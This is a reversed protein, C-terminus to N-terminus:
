IRKEYYARIIQCQDTLLFYMDLDNGNRGLAYACGCELYVDNGQVVPQRSKTHAMRLWHQGQPSWLYLVSDQRSNVRPLQIFHYRGIDGLQHLTEGSVFPRMRLSYIHGDRKWLPQLTFERSGPKRDMRVIQETKSRSSWGLRVAQFKWVADLMVLYDSMISEDPIGTLVLALRAFRVKENLGAEPHSTELWDLLFLFTKQLLDDDVDPYSATLVKEAAFDLRPLPHSMFLKLRALWQAKWYEARVVFAYCAQKLQWSPVSACESLLTHHLPKLVHGSHDSPFSVGALVVPEPKSLEFWLYHHQGAALRVYPWDTRDAITPVMALMRIGLGKIGKLRLHKQLDPYKQELSESFSAIGLSLPLSENHQPSTKLWDTRTLGSVQAPLRKWDSLLQLLIRLQAAPSKKYFDNLKVTQLHLGQIDFSKRTSAEKLIADLRKNSLPRSGSDTWYQWSFVPYLLQGRYSTEINHLLTFLLETDVGGSAQVQKCLGQLKNRDLLDCSSSILQLGEHKQGSRGAALKEHRYGIAVVAVLAAMVPSVLRLTNLVMLAAERKLNSPGIDGGEQVRQNGERQQQRSSQDSKKAKKKGKDSTGSHGSIKGSQGGDPIDMGGADGSGTTLVPAALGSTGLVQQVLDTREQGAVPTLPAHDQFLPLEVQVGKDDRAVQETSTAQDKSEPIVPPQNLAITSRYQEAEKELQSIRQQQKRIAGSHRTEQQQLNKKSQTKQEEGKKRAQQIELEKKQLASVHQQEKKKLASAHQQELKNQKEKHERQIRELTEGLKKINKEYNRLQEQEQALSQKRQKLESWAADREQGSKKAQEETELLRTYLGSNETRLQDREKQVSEERERGASLQRELDAAQQSQQQLQQNQTQLDNVQATLSETKTQESSLQQEVLQRQQQVEEKECEVCQLKGALENVQSTSAKAESNKQELQRQLEEVQKQKDAIERDKSASLNSQGTDPNKSSDSSTSTAAPKNEKKLLQLNLKKIQKEQDKIQQDQKQLTQDQRHMTQGRKLLAQDWELLTQHQELLVQDREKIKVALMQQHWMATAMQQNFYDQPVLGPPVATVPFAPVRHPPPPPPPLPPPLPPPPPPPLPLPPLLAVVEGPAAVSDPSHIIAQIWEDGHMVGGIMLSGSGDPHISYQQATLPHVSLTVNSPDPMVKSNFRIKIHGEPVDTAIVFYWAQASLSLILLLGGLLPRRTISVRCNTVLYCTTSRILSRWRKLAQVFSKPCSTM